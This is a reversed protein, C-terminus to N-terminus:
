GKVQIGRAELLRRVWDGDDRDLPPDLPQDYRAIVHYPGASYTRRFVGGLDLRVDPHNPSIPVLISPLPDRIRIGYLEVEMRPTRCTARSVVVAYQFGRKRCHAAVSRHCAIREGNRLLDVEIWNADSRLIESQKRLYSERDPGPLKNSPSLLELLTVLRDGSASDRIEVFNVKAKEDAPLLLKEPLTATGATAQQADTAGHSAGRPTSKVAVDPFLVGQAEFGAIGIEERDRLLAYHGPPLLPQLAERTYALFADHFDPWIGRAELYPDMGPFVPEM